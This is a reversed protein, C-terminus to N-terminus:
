KKAEAWMAARQFFGQKVLMLRTKKLKLRRAEARQLQRVQREVLSEALEKQSTISKYLDFWIDEGDSAIKDSLAKLCGAQVVAQGFLEYEYDSCFNVDKSILKLDVLSREVKEIRDAYFIRRKLCDEFIQLRLIDPDLVNQEKMFGEEGEVDEENQEEQQMQKRIAETQQHAKLKNQEELTLGAANQFVPQNFM